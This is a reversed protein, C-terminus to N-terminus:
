NTDVRSLLGFSSDYPSLFLHSVAREEDWEDKKTNTQKSEALRQNKNDLNSEEDAKVRKRTKDLPPHSSPTVLPEDSVSAPETAGDEVPDENDPEEENEGDEEANGEADDDAPLSFSYRSQLVNGTSGEQDNGNDYSLPEIPGLEEGNSPEEGDDLADMLLDVENETLEPEDESVDLPIDTDINESLADRPVSPSSSSDMKTTAYPELPLLPSFHNNASGIVRSVM